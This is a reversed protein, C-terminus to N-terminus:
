LRFLYYGMSREPQMGTFDIVENLLMRDTDEPLILLNVGAQTATELCAKTSLKDSVVADDDADEVEIYIDEAMCMWLYLNEIEPSYTDYSYANLAEEWMNRGYPLLISSDLGRAFEMIGRPAWLCLAEGETNISALLEAVEAKQQEKAEHDLDMGGLGGCLLMILLIGLTAPLGKRWAELRFGQWRETMFKTEAYAIVITVPVASWIWEYDYFRTQYLMLCVATIPLICCVAMVASYYLLQKQEEWQRSLWLFLLAVLFLAMLKGADTMRFWGMWANRLLETM